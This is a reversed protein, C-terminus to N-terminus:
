KTYNAHVLAANYVKRISISKQFCEEAKLEQGEQKYVWGLLNLGTEKHGLNTDSELVSQIHELDTVAETQKGLKSHNMCMLFHLLIKGDVVVWDFWFQYPENEMGTYMEKTRDMECALADPIIGRETPLFVVCPMCNNARIVAGPQKKLVDKVTEDVDYHHSGSCGCVSIVCPGLSRELMKLICLSANFYRHVFLFTAQKLKASFLNSLTSVESWKGSFLVNKLQQDDKTSEVAVLSSMFSLEIYPLVFSIARKTQKANHETITETQRLRLLLDWLAKSCKELEQKCCKYLLRNKVLMIFSVAKVNLKCIDPALVHELKVLVSQSTTRVGKGQESVGTKKRIFGQGLNGCLIQLFYKFDSALLDQLVKRLKTQLEGHIRGYFMNEEQIFYNPCEGNVTWKLLCKLCGQVCELLNGPRWTDAPTSEVLYFACTKLHYSALAPEQIFHSIIDGNIMKLIIYCKYQTENLSSMLMREQGLFSMNWELHKEASEWCGFPVLFFGLSKMKEIDYRSPWNYQRARKMWGKTNEPWKLCRYSHCEYIDFPNGTIMDTAARSGVQEDVLIKDPRKRHIVVRNKNDLATDKPLKSGVSAATQPIGKQVLQLKVYGPKTEDDSVALLQPIDMDKVESISQMVEYTEDCFVYNVDSDLRNTQSPVRTGESHSGFIYCSLPQDALRSSLTDLIEMVVAFKQQFKRVKKSAGISDM